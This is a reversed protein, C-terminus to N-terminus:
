NKEQDKDREQIAENLYEMCTGVFYTFEVHNDMMRIKNEATCELEKGDLNVGAWSHIVEDWQMHQQKELDTKSEYGKIKKDFKRTVCATEIKRMIAPSLPKIKVWGSGDEFDFRVSTDTKFDM